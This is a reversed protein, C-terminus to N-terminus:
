RRIRGPVPLRSRGQGPEDGGAPRPAAAARCRASEFTGLSGGDPRVFVVAAVHHWEVPYQTWGFRAEAYKPRARPAAHSAHFDTKERGILRPGVAQKLHRNWGGNPGGRSM